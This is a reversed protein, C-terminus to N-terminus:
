KLRLIVDNRESRWAKILPFHVIDVLDFASFADIIDQPSSWALAEFNQNALYESPDGDFNVNLGLTLFGGSRLVRCCELEIKELDLMHDVCNSYVMGFAADAFPLSHFDGKVVLSNKPGPNIDIGISNAFGMSRLADVEEGLRAGLCLVPGGFEIKQHLAQFEEVFLSVRRKYQKRLPGIRRNLKKAQRRLYSGYSAYKRKVVGM